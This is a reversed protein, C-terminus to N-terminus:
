CVFIVEFNQVAAIKICMNVHLSSISNKCM